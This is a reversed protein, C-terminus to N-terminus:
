WTSNSLDVSGAPYTKVVCFADPVFALLLLSAFVTVPIVIFVLKVDLSVSLPQSAPIKM